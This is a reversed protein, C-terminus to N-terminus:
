GNDKAHSFESKFSDCIHAITRNDLDPYTPFSIINGSIESAIPLQPCEYPPMESLPHFGPRTEIGRQGLRKIIQDRSPTNKEANLRVAYTWLVPAVGREFYQEKIRSEDALNKRYAAHVRHRERCIHDMKELQACGLAAQLNTMRFNYGVMDHWYRKERRMGHDRLLVMREHLERDDTLVMGGEGTTITKTAQFSLTGLTGFTGAHRDNYKSFIAEATDEIVPISRGEALDMIERMAAVNGYLHVPIVAKTRPTILPELAGADLLWTAPNVDAYVPTAGVALVMNAAAAFTYGPVIVEDGQGIGIALLALHLAATGNSVTVGFRAGLIEPLDAELREVYAGGSIWTSSLADAVYDKENGFFTPKAWPIFTSKLSKM